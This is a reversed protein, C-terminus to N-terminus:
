GGVPVRRLDAVAEADHRQESESHQGDPRQRRPEAGGAPRSQDAPECADAVLAPQGDVAQAPQEHDSRHRVASQDGRSKVGRDKESDGVKGDATRADRGIGVSLQKGAEDEGGVVVRDAIDAPRVLRRRLNRELRHALWERERRTLEDDEGEAAGASPLPM